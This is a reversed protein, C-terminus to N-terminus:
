IAVRKYAIVGEYHQINHRKTLPCPQKKKLTPTTLLIEAFQVGRSFDQRRGQPVMYM